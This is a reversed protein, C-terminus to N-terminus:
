KVIKSKACGRWVNVNRSPDDYVNTNSKTCTCGDPIRNSVERNCKLRTFSIDYYGIAYHTISSAWEFKGNQVYATFSGISWTVDADSKEMARRIGRRNINARASINYEAISREAIKRSWRRRVGIHRGIGGILQM